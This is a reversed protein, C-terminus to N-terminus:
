PSPGRLELLAKAADDGPSAVNFADVVLSGFPNSASPRATKGPRQPPLPPSKEVNSVNAAAARPRSPPLPPPALAAARALSDPDGAGAAKTEVLALASKPAAHVGKAIANPLANREILAAILDANPSADGNTQPLALAFEAPRRPPVPAMLDNDAFLAAPKRPPLPAVAPERPSIPADAADPDAAAPDPTASAPASQAEDPAALPPPPPAPEGAPAQRATDSKATPAAEALIAPAPGGRGVGAMVM